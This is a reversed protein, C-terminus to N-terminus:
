RSWWYSLKVLFVHAAPDTFVDGIDSSDIAGETGAGSRAQSWILYLNSGPLYEWRFVLNSILTSVQFDPRRVTFDATGDSNSDIGLRGMSPTVQSSSLEAFRDEYNSSRVDASEKYGVYEGGSIFPQAYLQFSMQPSLTVNLRTAGILTHQHLRGLIYHRSGDMASAAGVFQADDINRIFTPTFSLEVNSRLNWVFGVSGQTRFSHSDPRSTVTSSMLFQFAKTISTSMTGAGQISDDGHVAPGGRLLRTDLVSRTYQASVRARWFNAFGFDGVLTARHRLIDPAFDTFTEVVASLDADAVIDGGVSPDTRSIKISPNIQDAFTLFGVNNVDFGPSRADVGVDMLYTGAIKRLATNVNFGSLRTLTPDVELHTADPRQFYRQSARQSNLISSAHGHVYSGGVLTYFAWRNKAFQHLYQLAGAYAQEHLDDIAGGDGFRHVSTAAARVESSGGRFQNSLQAVNFLTMPEIVEENIEGTDLQARSKEEAGLASLLGSKTGGLSGSLKAATYLTTVGPEDVYPATGIRSFSPSAGIRRSYFYDEDGRGIKLSYLDADEIFIPRRESFFTETDSLNVESPDAELQGFDPNVAATLRLSRAVQLRLDAGGNYAPALPDNLSDASPVAREYRTGGVVYPIIEIPHGADITGDILLNGFGTVDTNSRFTFPSWWDKEQSRAVRRMVNFGWRDQYGDKVRMQSYPIRVESYWGTADRSSKGDWVAQYTHDTINGAFVRTDIKVGAANVAFGYAMRRNLEPDIFVFLWDSQPIKTITLPHHLLGAIKSPEPDLAHVGVYLAKDDYLVRFETHAIANLGEKPREQWKFQTTTAATWAQEDLVGDITVPGNRRFARTERRFLPGGDKQTAILEPTVLDGNDTPVPLGKAVRNAIDAKVRDAAEKEAAAKEAAEKEALEKAALDKAALEQAALEQAALEKAAQAKAAREKAAKIKAAKSEKPPRKKAAGRKTPAKRASSPPRDASQARAPAVHGALGLAVILLALIHRM